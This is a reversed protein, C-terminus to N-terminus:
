TVNDKPFCIARSFPTLAMMTLYPSHALRLLSRFLLGLLGLSDFLRSFGRLRSGALFSLPIGLCDKPVPTLGAANAAGKTGLM